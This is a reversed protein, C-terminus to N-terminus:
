LQYESKAIRMTVWIALDVTGIDFGFENAIEIFQGEVSEYLPINRVAGTQCEGSKMRLYELVHSDIVALDNSYGVRRLFLSAQKPGFGKVYEVLVRRAARPSDASRLVNTLTLGNMRFNRLTEVLFSSLRQKFRMRSSRRKGRYDYEIPSSLLEIVEHHYAELDTRSSVSLLGFARLREAVAVSMEYVLQSGFMCVVLNYLLDSERSDEWSAGAQVEPIVEACMSQVTQDIININM